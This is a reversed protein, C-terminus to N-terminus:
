VGPPKPRRPRRSRAGAAWTDRSFAGQFFLKGKGSFLAVVFICVVLISFAIPVAAILMLGTLLYYGGIHLGDPMGIAEPTM